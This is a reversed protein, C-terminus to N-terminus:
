WMERVLQNRWKLVGGKLLRAVDDEGEKDSRM